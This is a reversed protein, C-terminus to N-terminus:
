REPSPVLTGDEAVLQMYLRAHEDAYKMLTDLRAVGNAGPNPSVGLNVIVGVAKGNEDVVGGGMQGPTAPLASHTLLAWESAKGTVVADRWEPLTPDSVYQKLRAGIGLGSADAHGTPGPMGVLAPSEKPGASQDMRIVAFDNYNRADPNSEGDEQMTEWSSYVLLGINESGGVTVLTGVPLDRFCNATSGLFVSSHDAREFLFNSACDRKQTHIPVGPRVQASDPLAFHSRGESTEPEGVGTNRDGTYLREGQTVCGGLLLSALVLAFARAKM